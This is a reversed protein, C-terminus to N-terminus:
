EPHRIRKADANQRLAIDFNPRVVAIVAVPSAILKAEPRRREKVDDTAPQFIREEVKKRSKKNLWM